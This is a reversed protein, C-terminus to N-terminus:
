LLILVQGGNEGGFSLKKLNPIVASALQLILCSSFFPMLGLAFITLRDMVGGSLMATIGFLAGGQTKAIRSFFGRLVELNIGPLPLFFLIRLVIVAGVTILIRKRMEADNISWMLIDKLNHRPEPSLSVSYKNFITRLIM